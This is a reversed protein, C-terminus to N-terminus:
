YSAHSYFYPLIIPQSISLGSSVGGYKGKWRWPSASTVPLGLQYQQQEDPGM